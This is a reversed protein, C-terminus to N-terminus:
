ESEITVCGNFDNFSNENWDEKYKGTGYRGTVDCVVTGHCRETFLVIFDDGNKNFRMLKPYSRDYVPKISFDSKVTM